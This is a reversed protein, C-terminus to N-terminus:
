VVSKAFSQSRPEPLFRARGPTADEGAFGSEHFLRGRCRRTVPIVPARLWTEDIRGNLHFCRETMGIVYSTVVLQVPIRILLWIIRGVLVEGFLSILMALAVTAWETGLNPFMSDYLIFILTFGFLPVFIVGFWGFAGFSDAIVTFAIQVVDDKEGAEGAVHGLFNSSGYIPKTKDIFSPLMLEFDIKVAKFGYHYGSNTASILASDPRIMAMRNLLMSNNNFYQERYRGAEQTRIADYAAALAVPSHLAQALSYVAIARERLTPASALRRAVLQFPSILLSFFILGVAGFAYHRVKFKYGSLYAKLIYAITPIVTVSRVSDILGFLLLASWSMAVKLNVSHRGESSRIREGVALILSFLLLPSFALAISERTTVQTRTSYGGATLNYILTASSGILFSIWFLTNRETGSEVQM